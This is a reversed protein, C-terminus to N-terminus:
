PLKAPHLCVRATFNNGVGLEESHWETTSDSVFNDYVLGSAIHIMWLEYHWLPFTDDGKGAM